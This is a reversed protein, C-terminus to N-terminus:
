RPSSQPDSTKEWPTRKTIISSSDPSLSTTGIKKIEAYKFDPIPRLSAELCRQRSSETEELIKLTAAFGGTGAVTAPDNAVSEKRKTNIGIMMIHTIISNGFTSSFEM